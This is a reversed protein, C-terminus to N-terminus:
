VEPAGVFLPLGTAQSAAECAEKFAHEFIRDAGYLEYFWSLVGESLRYRLRVPLEYLDGNRFVPIGILFAAPVNMKGGGEDEHSTAYSVQVEGSALNLATAVKSNSRISMGRSLELLRSAPAFSVQIKEAVDRARAGARTPDGLIDVIRDEVFEAFKQQLMGKANNSTWALWEDSLPFAYFGRHQGFRPDGPEGAESKEHYDLVSLLTPRKPDASAFLASDIDAFRQAHAIFSALDGLMAVGIKREPATRYEDLLNKISHTELGKPLVLIRRGVEDLEVLSPRIHETVLKALADTESPRFNNVTTDPPM